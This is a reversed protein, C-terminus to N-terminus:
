AWYYYCNIKLLPYEWFSKTGDNEFFHLIKLIENCNFLTIKEIIKVLKGSKIKCQFININQTIARQEDIKKSLNHQLKVGIEQLLTFVEALEFIKAKYNENLHAYYKLYLSFFSLISVYNHIDNKKNETIINICGEDDIICDKLSYKGKYFFNQVNQMKQLLDFKGIPIVSQEFRQMGVNELISNDINISRIYYGDIVKEITYETFCLREYLSKLVSFYGSYKFVFAAESEIDTNNYDIKQSLKQPVKIFKNLLNMIFDLLDGSADLYGKAPFDGLDTKIVTREFDLNTGYGNSTHMDEVQVNIMTSSNVADANSFLLMYLYLLRSSSSNNIITKLKDFFIKYFENSKLFFVFLNVAKKDM